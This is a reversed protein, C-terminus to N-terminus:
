GVKQRRRYRAGLGVLGTSFLLLSAPEPVPTEAALASVAVSGAIPGYPDDLYM